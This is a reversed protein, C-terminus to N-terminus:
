YFLFTLRRVALRLVEQEHSIIVITPTYAGPVHADRQEKITRIFRFLWELSDKDLNNTPEDFLLLSFPKKIVRTLATKQNQGGSVDRQGGVEEDLDMTFPLETLHLLYSILKRRETQIAEPILDSGEGFFMNSLVTGMFLPPKQPMMGVQGRWTRIDRINRIDQGNIKVVGQQPDYLREILKAATSKGCGNPGAIVTVHAPEIKFSLNDLISLMGPAERRPLKYASPQIPDLTYKPYYFSVNEFEISCPAPFAPMAARLAVETRADIGEATVRKWPVGLARLQYWTCSEATVNVHGLGQKMYRVSKITQSIDSGLLGPMEDFQPRETRYEDGRQEKEIASPTRLMEILNRAVGISKRYSVTLQFTGIWKDQIIHLYDQFASFQGWTMEGDLIAAIGLLFVYTNIFMKLTVTGLSIITKMQIIERQLDYARYQERQRVRIAEDTANFLKIFEVNTVIQIMAAGINSMITAAEVSVVEVYKGIKNTAYGIFPHGSLGWVLMWWNVPVGAFIFGHAMILGLITFYCHFSFDRVLFIIQSTDSSCRTPLKKSDCLPHHYFSTDQKLFKRLVFFQSHLGVYADANSTIYSQYLGCAGNFIALKTMLVFIPLITEWSRTPAWIADVLRGKVLHMYNSVFMTGTGIVLCQAMQWWRWSLINKAMYGFSMSPATYGKDSM